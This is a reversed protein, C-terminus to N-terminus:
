GQQAQLLGMMASWESASMFGDKDTDVYTKFVYAHYGLFERQILGRGDGETNFADFSRKANKRADGQLSERFEAFQLVGDANADFQAIRTVQFGLYEQLSCKGDRDKDLFAIVQAPTAQAGQQASAPAAGLAACLVAGAVLIWSKVAVEV